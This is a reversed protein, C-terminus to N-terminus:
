KKADLNKDTYFDIDIKKRNKEIINESIGKIAMLDETSKFPGHIARYTVIAQAKKIGIAVMKKDIEEATATNINLKESAMSSATSIFFIAIALIRALIIM